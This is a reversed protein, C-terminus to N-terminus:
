SPNLVVPSAIPLQIWFETGQGPESICKIIGGHKEVVIQYSISLGLGTGKGVPKTTFFPDFLRRVISQTMGPGNDRIRIIVNGFTISNPTISLLDESSDERQTKPYSVETQITICRPEPQNELADVANSIINMFVQNIQGPYCEVLPLNRYEKIITIGPNNGKPKLRHHLILLTSDIGEHINVPKKEVEDVRSFNRLSLVIEHIRDAGMKMSSLIKPLDEILFELDIEQTYNQIERVPDPYYHQYLEILKLLDRIYNTAHSLNGTIFNVPNNIEHAVGAVMQGLGSLKETQILWSETQQLDQLALELQHAQTQAALATARTKAFLEAQEIAIALQDVVAQLLEVERDSWRHSGHYHTCIIAGLQGSHTKLPLLLGSTMGGDELFARIEPDLSEATALDDIRLTQLNSITEALSTLHPPPCEGLLTPLKSNCAEHTVSLSTQNSETWCWLFHCCDVGLLSRIETVATELITDLDLSNRIQSALQFILAERRSLLELRAWAHDIALAIANAVWGLVGYVVQSFPQHSALAIVGVLRSEIILPYGTFFTQGNATEDTIALNTNLPQRTLVIVSFLPQKASIRNPFSDAPMLQGSSAQLDLQWSNGQEAGALDFTWIGVGIPDLHQMMADTCRQLSETLTGGQGLATGVDSELTSIRSREQLTAKSKSKTLEQAIAYLLGEEVLGFIQWELWKDAGDRCRFRHEIKITGGYNALKELEDLTAAKDEPHVWDLFPQNELEQTSYLLTKALAPNVQQIYGDLSIICLLEPSIRFFRDRQLYGPNVDERTTGTAPTLPQLLVYKDSQVQTNGSHKRLELQAIAQRSLVALAEQQQLTLERPVRDIVALIGLLVGQHTVLPAGAYFIGSKHSKVVECTVFRQDTSADQVMLVPLDRSELQRLAETCLALYGDTLGQELGVQSKLWRHKSDILCLLAIPTQCISAALRTLDDFDAEPSRNISQYQDVDKLRVAGNGFLLTKM